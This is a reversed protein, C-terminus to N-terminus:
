GVELSELERAIMAPFYRSRATAAVQAGTGAATVRVRIERDHDWFRVALGVSALVLAILLLTAGPDHDVGLDVWYRVEPFAVRYPGLTGAEGRKLLLSGSPM